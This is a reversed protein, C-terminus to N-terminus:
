PAFGDVLLLVLPAVTTAVFGPLFCLGLPLVLLVGARHLAGEVRRSEAARMRRAAADVLGAPAAGAALAAHWAVGAPAWGPGVHDWARDAPEGWRHAAAVVGLDRGASTPDVAAVAELCEVAGAGGRLSAALLALAVAADDVTPPGADSLVPPPGSAPRPARRRPVVLVALVLLATAWGM